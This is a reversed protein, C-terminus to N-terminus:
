YCYGGTCYNGNYDSYTNTSPNYRFSENNYTGTNTNRNYRFRNGSTDRITTQNPTYNGYYSNGTRYNYGRVNGYGNGTGNYQFSSGNNYNNYTGQYQGWAPTAVGLAVLASTIYLFRKFFM